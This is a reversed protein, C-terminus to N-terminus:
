HIVQYYSSTVTIFIGSKVRDLTGAPLGSLISILSAKFQAPMQGHMFTSDLADALAAPNDGIGLWPTLDFTAGNYSVNPATSSQLLSEILNLRYITNWPTFIQFEPANVGKTTYQPTYYNFVSPSAFLDESMAQLDYGLINADIVQSGLARLVTSLYLAPEQLHGFGPNAASDQTDGARAEVDLLIATIVAQMDGKVGHGNDNFITAVRRVYDTSPSSTVLHQILFRSVFPAVNQHSAINAMAAAMDQATTQGAPLVVGNLLAKATTDHNAENVVMSQFFGSNYESVAPFTWGTFVKAFYQITAQDYSPAPFGGVTVPTGDINILATGISFLQLVERAYNENAVTGKAPDAKVNNLMDLYIGMAPDLTVKTLLDPFTTFANSYLMEQFPAVQPPGVLKGLAIVFFQSLSFAVRQRLQNGGNVSNAVFRSSMNSVFGTGGTAAYLSGVPAAFQKALWGSFGLQQVETVDAPTPGFGAQELFRIAATATVLPAAVGIQIPLPASLQNANPGNAVIVNAKAGQQSVLTIGACKLQSTSIFTTALPLGALSVIAGSNFNAGYVFFSYPGYPLTTVSFSTIVPSIVATVTVVAAGSIAPNTTSTATVTVTGATPPATFDGTATISGATATWKVSGALNTLTATFTTATGVAMTFARPNVTISAPPPVSTQVAVRWTGAGIGVAPLDGSAGHTFCRDPACPFNGSDLVNNGTIDVLWWGIPYGFTRYSGIRKLGTNDWDAFLPVDTAAGFNYNTDGIHDGNLDLLWHNKRVVGLRTLGTNSWDGVVPIDGVGGMSFVSQPTYRLVGDGVLDLYWLGDQFFGLRDRGTNDWDGVVPTAGAWGFSVQRDVGPTYLNDGDIDLYWVGSRYIGIRKKGTNDWDGVVPVADPGTVASWTYTAYKAFNFYSSVFWQGTSPRFVGAQQAISIRAFFGHSNGAALTSQLPNVLPFNSSTTTGSVFLESTANSLISTAADAGSGGLYSSWAIAGAPSFVAVFGDTTGGLTTGNYSGNLPTKEGPLTQTPFDSSATTGAIAVFGSPMLTIANAQDNGAGGWYTASLLTGSNSLKALFADTGGKFAAQSARMAPFNPSSTTGAVWVEGNANVAIANGSEPFAATGGTGGLYTSYVIQGAGNLKTVFADQGGGSIAQFANPTPFDQSNTSGTVYINGQFQAIAKIEDSGAGGLYTLFGPALTPLIVGVFGDSGGGRYAPGVANLLPLDTSSTTGAFYTVYNGDLNVATIEDSGSGGVYTAYYLNPGLVIVFGNASGKLKSQLPALTTSVPFDASNTSGGIAVYGYSNVSISNVKETGSGGFLTMSNLTVVGSSSVGFRALFGDSGGKFSGSTAGLIDSSATTGAVLITSDAASYTSATIQDAFSGGLYTGFTLDPDIVLENASDHRQVDFGISGDSYQRYRAQRVIQKLGGGTKVVEFVSPMTERMLQGDLSRLVLQDGNVVSANAGKFRFRIRRIDAGSQAIFDGKLKGHMLHYILDIGPYLRQYRVGDFGQANM